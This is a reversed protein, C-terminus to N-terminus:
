RSVSSKQLVHITEHAMQCTAGDRQFWKGYLDPAELEPRFFETLLLRYRNGSNGTDDFFSFYSIHM